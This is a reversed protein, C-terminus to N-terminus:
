ARIATMPLRTRRACSTPWRPPARGGPAEMRGVDANGDRGCQRHTGFVARRHRRVGPIREPFAPRLLRCANRLKRQPRWRRRTRGPVVGASRANRADRRRLVGEAERARMLDFAVSRYFPASGIHTMGQFVVQRQGDTLTVRPVTLPSFAPRLVLWYLPAAILVSAVMGAAIARPWLRAVPRRRLHAGLWGSTAMLIAGAAFVALLLWPSASVLLPVSLLFLLVLLTWGVARLQEVREPSPSM